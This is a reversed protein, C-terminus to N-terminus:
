ASGELGELMERAETQVDVKLMKASAVIMMLGYDDSTVDGRVEIPQAVLVDALEDRVVDTSMADRAAEICADLTKDLLAETLERDFVATLAGSGDGLVAKVRLDPEGKVEGHLRCVGKRLVRRCEPCRYVLGSGERLDILIGRVTVDAAGGREALDEIWMRPSANLGNAPPAFDTKLRTNTARQGFSSPPIGRWSKVYAGEIRLAEEAALGFDKWASFQTKGTEDALVGSFVAKPTGDVEVERREVSLIRATVQVNSAGERLDVVRVPTPKGMYPAGTSPKYEPLADAAEKAVVTRFGFNVQVQGRYEKSYANQVRVVDGKALTVPLPEWATFPITTTPDGLIGYLIRKTEGEVTVDKENVSVIRVLLNVSQEGPVLERLTKSVGVALTAPNGGHKKVISRKATDLSVRYVNLYSSLEREIEQESVKNGLARNIDHVHPALEERVSTVNGLRTQKEGRYHAHARLIFPNPSTASLVPAIPGCPENRPGGKFEWPCPRAAERPRRTGGHTARAPETGPRSRRPHSRGPRDIGKSGGPSGRSPPRAGPLLGRSSGPRGRTSTGRCPPGAGPGGRQPRPAPTRPGLPSPGGPKGASRPAPWPSPRVEPMCRSDPLRPESRPPLRGIRRRSGFASSRWRTPRPSRGALPPDATPSRSPASRGPRSSATRPM